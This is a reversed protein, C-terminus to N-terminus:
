KAIKWIGNASQVYIVGDAAIAMLCDNFLSAGLGVGVSVEGLTPKTPVAVPVAPGTATEPLHVLRPNHGGLFDTVVFTFGGAPDRAGCGFHESFLSNPGIPTYLTALPGGTVSGLQIPNWSCSPVFAVAGSGGILVDGIV